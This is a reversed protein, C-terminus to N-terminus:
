LVLSHPYCAHHFFASLITLRTVIHIGHRFDNLCSKIRYALQSVDQWKDVNKVPFVKSIASCISFGFFKVHRSNTECPCSFSFPTKKLMRSFVEVKAVLHAIGMTPMWAMSSRSVFCYAHQLM